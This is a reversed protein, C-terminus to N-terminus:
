KADLTLWNKCAFPHKMNGWSINPTIVIKNTYNSLYAGWFSFTSNAIINHKCFNMLQMDKYSNRGSNGTILTFDILNSFLKKCYEHDDSFIYFTPNLIKSKIIEIAQHYYNESTVSLGMTVYENRRVHICVSNESRMKQSFSKNEGELPNIFKFDSLLEERITEIYNSNAWVGDLYYSKLPNLQFIEQYYATNDDQKIHSDKYGFRFQHVKCLINILKSAPADTPYNYSLRAVQKWTSNELNIGFVKDLEYGNFDKITEIHAKIINDPYAKELRKMFAYEFMQNGLAGQFKVIFM